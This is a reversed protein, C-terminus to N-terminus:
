LVTKLFRNLLQYSSIYATGKNHQWKTKGDIQFPNYESTYDILAILLEKNEEVDSFMKLNPLKFSSKIQDFVNPSLCEYNKVENGGNKFIAVDVCNCGNKCQKGNFKMKDSIDEKLLSGYYDGRIADFVVNIKSIEEKDHIPCMQRNKTLENCNCGSVANQPLQPTQTEKEM